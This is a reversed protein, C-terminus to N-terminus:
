SNEQGVDDEGEMKAIHEYYRVPMETQYLRDIAIAVVKTVDGFLAALETLQEDTRRSFRITTQRTAM